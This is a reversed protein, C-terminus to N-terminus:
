IQVLAYHMAILSHLIEALKQAGLVSRTNQCKHSLLADSRAIRQMKAYRCYHIRAKVVICVGGLLQDIVSRIDVARVIKRM